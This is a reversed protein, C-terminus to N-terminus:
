RSPEAPSAPEALRRVLDLVRALDEDSLAHTLRELEQVELNRVLRAPMRQQLRYMERLPEDPNSDSAPAAVSRSSAPMREAQMPAATMAEPASPDPARAPAPPEPATRAPVSSARRFWARGPGGAPSAAATRPQPAGGSPVPVSPAAPVESPAPWGTSGPSSASMTEAPYGPATLQQGLSSSTETELGEATELLQSPRLGLAEAMSRLVKSSPRKKGNEIEALYPYSLGAAEALDKREMGLLARHVKIARGLREYYGPDGAPDIGGGRSTRGEDRESM